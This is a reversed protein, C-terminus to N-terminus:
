LYKASKYWLNEFIDIFKPSTILLEVDLTMIPLESFDSFESLALLKYEDKETIVVLDAEMKKATKLITKLDEKSYRHHDPFPIARLAAPNLSQLTKIFAMPNGIGCVAIIRKGEVQSRKLEEATGAYRLVSPKHLSELIPINPAMRKVEDKISKLNQAQAQDIRTILILSARNIEKKSERLRGVPLLAENAFPQTADILLIEVDKALKLHQFGDDLLITDVGLKIAELGAQYRNKGVIVVVGKLKSAIMYAEDGSEEPSALIQAGDSVILIKGKQKNRKYGRLIVALRNKRNQNQNQSQILKALAITTTTKGTGGVSINGVSIVKCPLRHPSLIRHDYLWRRLKTIILYLLSLPYLFFIKSLSRRM